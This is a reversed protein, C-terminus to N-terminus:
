FEFKMRGEGKKIEAPPVVWDRQLPKILGGVREFKSHPSHLCQEITMWKAQVVKAYADSVTPGNRGIQDRLIDARECEKRYRAQRMHKPRHTGLRTELRDLEEAKCVASGVCQSRYRLGLCQSCAWIEKYVLAAFGKGCGECQLYQRGQDVSNPRNVLKIMVDGQGQCYPLCPFDYNIVLHGLTRSLIQVWGAHTNNSLRYRVVPLPVQGENWRSLKGDFINFRPYAEVYSPQDDTM